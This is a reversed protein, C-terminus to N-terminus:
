CDSFVETTQFAAMKSYDPPLTADFYHCARYYRIDELWLQAYKKDRIFRQSLRIPQRVVDLIPGLLESPDRFCEWDCQKCWAKQNLTDLDLDWFKGLNEKGRFGCPYTDMNKADIFFFDIGGRCAYSDDVRDGESDQYHRILARLACRPTFIRLRHRFEPITDFMAKFLLMKERRSFRIFADTSTATFVAADNGDDMDMPYCANVTTFGLQEVASYFNRFGQRFHQYYREEEAVDCLPALASEGGFYRNIGLNAAPYIGYRHFIPLAKAIGAVSNPLGRNAEHVKASASDISIWFTYLGSQALTQALSAIKHEYDKRQHTRFMFGNTGTRIYRIGVARAHRICETIEKLYLLPEGGTFSVAEVGREAMNDLLHKVADVDLTSREFRNERRMGCQACSANCLETFQIVAQLPLRGSLMRQWHRLSLLPNEASFGVSSRISNHVFSIM